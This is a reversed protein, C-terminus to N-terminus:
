DGHFLATSWEGLCERAWMLRELAEANDAGDLAGKGLDTRLEPNAGGDLLASVIDEIRNLPAMNVVVHLPTFGGCDRANVDAGAALLMRIADLKLYRAAAHLPTSGGFRQAPTCAAVGGGLGLLIVPTSPTRTAVSGGHELLLQIAPTNGEIAAVHMPTFGRHDPADVIAGNELLRRAKELMGAEIAKTLAENM